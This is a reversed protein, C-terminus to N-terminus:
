KWNDSHTNYTRMSYIVGLPILIMQLVPTLGVKLYPIIPMAGYAWRNVTHIAWLEFSVALLGGIIIPLVWTAPYTYSKRKNLWHFDKHALALSLYIIVMFIMDGTATAYFCIPFHQSLSDFGQFLPAQLMEWTLHFVFSVVFFILINKWAKGKKNTNSKHNSM